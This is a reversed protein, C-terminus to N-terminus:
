TTSVVFGPRGVTSHSCQGGGEHLAPNQHLHKIRGTNFSSSRRIIGHVQLFIISLFHVFWYFCHTDFYIPCFISKHLKLYSCCCSMCLSPSSKAVTDIYVRVFLYVGDAYLAYSLFLLFCLTGLFFCKWEKEWSQMGLPSGWLQNFICYVLRMCALAISFQCKPLFPVAGKKSWPLPLFCALFCVHVKLYYGVREM